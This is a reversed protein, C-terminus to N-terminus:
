SANRIFDLPHTAIGPFKALVHPDYTILPIGKSRAVYVFECDNATCGSMSALEMVQASDVQYEHGSMLSEAQRVLELAIELSLGRRLGQSVANRFESRWVVPAVWVPDCNYVKESVVTNDSPLWLSLLVDTGVVIM